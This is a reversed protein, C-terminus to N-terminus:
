IWMCLLQLSSFALQVVQLMCIFIIVFDTFSFFFREFFSDYKVCHRRKEMETCNRLLPGEGPLYALDQGRGGRGRHATGSGRPAVPDMGPPVMAEANFAWSRRTPTPSAPRVPPVVAVNRGRRLAALM